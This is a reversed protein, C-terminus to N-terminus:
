TSCRHIHYYLARKSKYARSCIDCVFQPITAHQKEHHKNEMEKVAFTKGCGSRCPIDVTWLNAFDHVMFLHCCLGARKNYQKGCADCNVPPLTVRSSTHRRIWHSQLNSRAANGHMEISCSDCKMVLSTQRKKMAIAQSLASNEHHRRAFHAYLHMKRSQFKCADCTVHQLGPTGESNRRQERNLALRLRWDHERGIHSTLFARANNWKEKGVVFGCYDCCGWVGPALSMTIADSFDLVIHVSLWM